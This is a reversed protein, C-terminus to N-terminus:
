VKSGEFDGRHHLTKGSYRPMPQNVFILKTRRLPRRTVELTSKTAGNAHLSRTTLQNDLLVLWAGVSIPLSNAILFSLFIMQNSESLRNAQGLKKSITDRSSM